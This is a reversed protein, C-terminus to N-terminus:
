SKLLYQGYSSTSEQGNSAKENNSKHFRNIGEERMEKELAVQKNNM